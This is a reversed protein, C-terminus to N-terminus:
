SAGNIIDMVIKKEDFPIVKDKIIIYTEHGKGALLITDKPKAIQLAYKIAEKRDTIAIYKAKGKRVGVLIDEIIKDPDEYRPNDSTVVCIDAHKAAIEGMIPRKERDRNGGAGFVVIKRGQAFGDITTLVKDLGDPTHAYDIIVNFGRSDVHIVDFRGNIRSISEIGKKIVPLSIGYSIACSAAALANYVNFKGLLKMKIPITGEPTNMIFDVGMTHYNIDTAYVHCKENIGYTLIPVKNHIEKLMKKGYEDDINIINCKNTRNFLKLKSKYYNEMTKHFDLHDKTLNTFIGVQFNIYEVRKLDLAHSSVEMVCYKSGKDLMKRLQKQIVLSEPTTNKNEIREGNIVAGLTGMVSTTRGDEDFIRKILYTTSTKGNTGTVGIVNLEESPKGYFISSFRALARYTDKVKIITIDKSEITKMDKEVIICAAGRQIADDIYCHGDVSFGQIAIFMDGKSIKRSDNEIKSIDVDVNGRILEYDFGRLLDYLKM